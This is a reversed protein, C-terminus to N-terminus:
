LLIHRCVGVDCVGAFGSRDLYVLWSQMENRVRRTMYCPLCFLRAIQPCVTPDASSPTASWRSPVTRPAWTCTPRWCRSGIPSRGLPAAQQQQLWRRLRRRRFSIVPHPSPKPRTPSPCSSTAVASPTIHFPPAPLNIYRHAMHAALFNPRTKKRELPQAIKKMLFIRASMSNNESKQLLWLFHLSKTSLSTKLELANPEYKKM